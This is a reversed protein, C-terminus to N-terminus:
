LYEMALSPHSEYQQNFDPAYSVLDTAPEGFVRDAAKKLLEDSFGFLDYVAILRLSKINLGLNSNLEKRLSDAEIRYPETKEVFIRHRSDTM